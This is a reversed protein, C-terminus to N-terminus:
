LGLLLVLFLFYPIIVESKKITFHESFIYLVNASFIVLFTVIVVEMMKFSATVHM